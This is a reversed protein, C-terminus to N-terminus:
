CGQEDVLHLFSSSSLTLVILDSCVRQVFNVLITRQSVNNENTRLNTKCQGLQLISGVHTEPIVGVVTVLDQFGKARCRLVTYGNEENRYTIREVACHLQEM